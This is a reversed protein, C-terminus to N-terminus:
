KEQHGKRTASDHAQIMGKIEAQGERLKTLEEETRIRGETNTAAIQELRVVRAKTSEIESDQRATNRADQVVYGSISLLIAGLAVLTRSDFKLLKQDRIAKLEEHWNKEMAEAFSQLETLQGLVELQFDKTTYQTGGSAKEGARSRLRNPLSEESM